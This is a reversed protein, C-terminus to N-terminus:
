CAMLVCPVCYSGDDYTCTVHTSTVKAVTKSRIIDDDQPKATGDGASMLLDGRQVTVGEAIRIIFDGTMACYFDDTYTDDDDDWAQFVGSVNPDGEVDSVKMRNLQENKEEGWTCMEDINSLVTGRLIETREAGGPLQSWRSLHAGNYSVTTGSVSISGELASDQYFDVLNGDTGLRNIRLVPNQNNTVGLGLGPYFELGENAIGVSTKQMLIRRENTIRMAETPSSAGDATVSFVLRGPYDGSGADADASCGIVAFQKDANDTFVLFGINEGSTIATAAENRRLHVQAPNAGSVGRGEVIFKANTDTVSSTGVLLRGSSDIRAAESGGETFAITDAAPFFIGTDLDDNKTIVPAAASGAGTVAIQGSSNIRLRETPSAAANATTSFVLRGPMDNAGPTGDVECGILAAQSNADTGDAGSFLIFGLGDGNQVITNSGVSAGRSKALSLYAGGADNSNSTIGLGTLFGGEIQSLWNVTSTTRASSTGVLLRGSSDIRLSEDGSSGTSVTFIGTDIDILADANSARYLQKIVTTTAGSNSYDIDFGIGGSDNGGVLIKGDLTSNNSVHLPAIPSTTGIGVNGANSIRVREEPAVTASVDDATFFALGQRDQDAGEQVPAIATKFRSNDEPRSWALASGFNGDGAVGAPTQLFLGVGAFNSVGTPDFSASTVTHLIAAPSSTGVGVKGDSTIRLRETPSASGDATTSFVLRGPMDNVGPTGDVQASIFAAQVYKSGDAGYFYFAGLTDGSNVITTGGSSGQRNKAFTLKGHGGGNVGNELLIGQNSVNGASFQQIGYTTFSDLTLASSTGVLLQGSSTIRARETFSGAQFLLANNGTLLMDGSSTLGAYFSASGGNNECQLYVSSAGAERLHLKSNPSTTGIGVRGSSDIRVRTSNATAISLYDSAYNYELYGRTADAANRFTIYNSVTDNAAQLHIIASPNGKLHFLASPASTGVGVKGDSTIRLRETPIAGTLFEIQSTNSAGSNQIVSIQQNTADGLKLQGNARLLANGVVEFKNNLSAAGVGVNGSSDVFLRGTGNTALAVSNASPLYVGNTPVTSSTPIFSAATSTGTTTVNQSGFNPSIKTGAIAASANIDGNVITGDLIMTSTVTGTDGVTVVNNGSKTLTGTVAVSSDFTAAGTVDLTGPVDVNSTWEVGTGAADTQLLQRAAGDALKSVAIEASANIDADVIVGSAISTGISAGSTLDSSVTGIVDGTVAFTRSSNLKTATDANGTLSATIAGASFDGSADRAVIANATNSSTATTASNSVKGATSITALKTDVIAASSNIDENVITNNAIMTSTVTGTDGVTVVNNGSKTLAGTVAVSSDFTAAGTVDLTGPVDVNSTWEVGSGAADTQLLQRAAGDALKSVAIEAAANIDSDVITGSPINASSIQVASGLATASLVEVDNIRYSKGSALDINESSTWSDTANSWNLTKDTAGKLTIGGGDATIDTPTAVVGMEINKDEVLLTESSITTTTGSVTLDGAVVLDGLLNVDNLTIEEQSFASVIKSNLQAADVVKGSTGNTIDASTALRVTGFISTTALPITTANVWTSTSDKYVKLVATTASIDLWLDGASPSTPATAGVWVNNLKRVNGATDKCTLFPGDANYNLALEGVALDSAFPQKQSVASKKLQIQLSM